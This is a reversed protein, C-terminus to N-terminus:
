SFVFQLLVPHRSSLVKEMKEKVDPSAANLKELIKKKAKLAGVLHDNVEDFMGALEVADPGLSKVDVHACGGDCEGREKRGCSGDGKCGDKM